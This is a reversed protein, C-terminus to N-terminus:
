HRLWISSVNPIFNAIIFLICKASLAKLLSVNDTSRLLAVITNSAFAASDADRLLTFLTTPVYKDTIFFILSISSLFTIIKIINIGSIAAAVVQESSLLKGLIGIM